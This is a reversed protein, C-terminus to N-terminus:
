LGRRKTKTGTGKEQNGGICSTASEYQWLHGIEVFCPTRKKGSPQPKKRKRLTRGGNSPMRVCRQAMPMVICQKHEFFFCVM